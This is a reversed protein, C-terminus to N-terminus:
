NHTITTFLPTRYVKFPTSYAIDRSNPAWCLSAIPNRIIFTDYIKGTESDITGFGSRGGRFLITAGFPPTPHRAWAIDQFIGSFTADVRVQEGDFQLIVLHQDSECALKEGDPSWTPNQLPLSLSESVKKLIGGGIPLVYIDQGDDCAIQQGNPSIEPFRQAPMNSPTLAVKDASSLDIRVLQDDQSFVISKSDNSFTPYFNQRHHAEATLDSVRREVLNYLYITNYKEVRAGISSLGDAAWQYSSPAVWTSVRQHNGDLDFRYLGVGDTAHEAYFQIKGQEPLAKLSYIHTFDKSLEKTTAHALSFQQLKERGTENDYCAYVIFDDLLTMSSPSCAAVLTVKADIDKYWFHRSNNMTKGAYLVRDNPMLKVTMPHKLSDLVIHQTSLTQPDIIEIYYNNEQYIVYFFQHNDPAWELPSINQLDTFTYTKTSQDAFSFVRYSQESIQYFIKEGNPSLKVAPANGFLYPITVTILSDIIEGFLGFQQIKIKAIPTQYVVLTSDPSWSLHEKTTADSFLEQTDVHSSIKSQEVPSTCAIYLTLIGASCLRVLHIFRM